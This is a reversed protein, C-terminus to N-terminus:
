GKSSTSNVIDVVKGYVNKIDLYTIYFLPVGNNQCLTAKRNDREKTKIFENEGGYREVPQFHQIGQCEIAIKLSPLYFDLHQPNLWSFGRYNYKYEINLSDLASATFTELHSQLCVPCGQGELHHHPTQLFEGHEPCIIIVQKDTGSYVVKSYDYKNGHIERAQRIFEEQPKMPRPSMELIVRRVSEQIIRDIIKENINKM